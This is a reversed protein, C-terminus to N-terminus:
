GTTRHGIANAAEATVPVRDLWGPGTAAGSFADETAGLALTPRNITCNLTSTLRM